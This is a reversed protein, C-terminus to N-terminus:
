AMNLTKFEELLAKAAPDSKALLEYMVTEEMQAKREELQSKVYKLREANEQRKNHSKMDIVDVIWSTALNVAEANEFTNEICGTVRVIKLISDKTKVVVHDGEVLGPIDTKYCYEKLLPANLDFTVKAVYYTQEM